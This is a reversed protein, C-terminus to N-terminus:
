QGAGAPVPAADGCVCGPKPKVRVTRFRMSEGDLHHVRLAKDECPRWVGVLWRIVELAMTSGMTGPVPGAVGQQLTTPVDRASGDVACRICATKGPVIFASQGSWALVGATALPKGTRLCADNLLFKTDFNDTADVIVNYAAMFENVNGQDLRVRHMDLTTEANLLSLAAVASETKPQELMHEGHLIQRQLNSLKVTESDVLGLTGVGAAALYLTAPSGLAGLGVVCVRADALNKQGAEGFGPVLINYRYRERQQEPITM